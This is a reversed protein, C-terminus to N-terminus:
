KVRHNSGSENKEIKDGEKARCKCGVVPTFRTQRPNAEITHEIRLKM